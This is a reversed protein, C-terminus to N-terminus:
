PYALAPAAARRPTPSIRAYFREFVRAQHEEPIGIGTDAVTVTALGDKEGVTISVSGGAHNYKVANDCLNYIIEYLLRRVGTLYVSDGQVSM